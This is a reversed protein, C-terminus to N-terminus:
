RVLVVIGKYIKSSNDRYTISAYYIYSDMSAREGKYNGDWGQEVDTSVLLEEGWRDFIHM